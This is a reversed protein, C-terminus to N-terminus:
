RLAAEDLKGAKYYDGDLDWDPDHFRTHSFASVFKRERLVDDPLVDIPCYRRDESGINM